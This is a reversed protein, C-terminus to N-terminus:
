RASTDRGRSKTRITVDFSDKPVGLVRSIVERAIREADILTGMPTMAGPVEPVNLLWWNGRNCARATYSPREAVNV